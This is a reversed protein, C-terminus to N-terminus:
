HKWTRRDFERGLRDAERAASERNLGQKVNQYFQLAQLLEIRSLKKVDRGRVINSARQYLADSDDARQV